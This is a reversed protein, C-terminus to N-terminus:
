VEWSNNLSPGFEGVAVFIMSFFDKSQFPDQIHSVLPDAKPIMERASRTANRALISPVAYSRQCYEIEGFVTTETIVVM